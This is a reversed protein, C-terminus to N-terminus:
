SVYIHELNPSGGEEGMTMTGGEGRHIHSNPPDQLYDGGGRDHNGKKTTSTTRYTTYTTMTGGREGTFIHIYTYICIHIYTYIYRHIYIHINTYIYLIDTYMYIYM